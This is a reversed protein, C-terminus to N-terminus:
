FAKTLFLFIKALGWDVFMIFVAILIVIVIVITTAAVVYRRGPWTVKKIEGRTEKLYDFLKKKLEKM